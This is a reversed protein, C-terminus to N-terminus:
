RRCAVLIATIVSEVDKIVDDANFRLVRLGQGQLWADRRLDRVPNGGMDHSVGDVEIVLKAAACYFDATCRDLPHQCRFKLGGPRARLIQWLCAEPPSLSRRLERARLVAANRNWVRKPRAM